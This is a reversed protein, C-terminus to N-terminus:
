NPGLIVANLSDFQRFGADFTVLQLNGAVAFAALYADQWLKPSFPYGQTFARLKVPLGKPEDMFFFRRDTMTTDFARWAEDTTCVENRMVAPNTLLRLFSLQSVRCFVLGDDGGGGDMWSKAM